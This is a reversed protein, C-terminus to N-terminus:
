CANHSSKIRNIFAAVIAYCTTEEKFVNPFSYFCHPMGAFTEVEVKQSQEKLTRNKFALSQDILPDQDGVLIITPPLQDLNCYLPSVLPNKWESFGVYAARAYALFAADMVIGNPALTNYSSYKELEMDLWPALLVLGSISRPHKKLRQCLALALNGGASDGALFIQKADIHYAVANATIAKFVNECDDLACPFVTEPALRYNVSVIIMKNFHCLTRTIYDTDEACGIVFGGGHMYVIAPLKGEFNRPAYISCNIGAILAEKVTVEDLLEKPPKPVASKDGTFPDGMYISRLCAAM